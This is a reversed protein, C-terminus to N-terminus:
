AAARAVLDVFALDHASAAVWCHLRADPYAAFERDLRQGVGPGHAAVRYLSSRDLSLTISGQRRQHHIARPM